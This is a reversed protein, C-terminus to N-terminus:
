AQRCASFDSLAFPWAALMRRGRDLLILCPRFPRAAGPRYLCEESEKSSDTPDLM